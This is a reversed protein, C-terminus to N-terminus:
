AFIIILVDAYKDMLMILATVKQKYKKNEEKIVITDKEMGRKGEEQSLIKTRIEKENTHVEVGLGEIDHIKWM